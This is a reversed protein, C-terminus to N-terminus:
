ASINMLKKYEPLGKNLINKAANWDRIHHINCKPCTWERQALTLKDDGKLVTGCNSCTQTTNRPNVTLFTKGYLKAKYELQSLFTRWGVDSISMALAHNRLM